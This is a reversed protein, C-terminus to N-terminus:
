LQGRQLLRRAGDPRQEGAIGDGDRPPGDPQPVHPELM